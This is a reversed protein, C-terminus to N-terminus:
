LGDNITRLKTNKSGFSLLHGRNIRVDVTAVQKSGQLAFGNTASLEGSKKEELPLNKGRLRLENQGLGKQERPGEVYPASTIEQPTIGGRANRVTLDAGHNGCLAPPKDRARFNTQIAKM